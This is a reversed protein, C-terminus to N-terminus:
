HFSLSFKVLAMLETTPQLNFNIEEESPVSEGMREIRRFCRKLDFASLRFVKENNRNGKQVQKLYILDASVFKTPVYKSKSGYDQNLAM